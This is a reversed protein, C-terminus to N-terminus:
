KIRESIYKKGYWDNSGFLKKVCSNPMINWGYGRPEEWCYVSAKAKTITEFHTSLVENNKTIYIISTHEKMTAM